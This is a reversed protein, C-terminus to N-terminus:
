IDCSSDEDPYKENAFHEAEEASLWYPYIDGFSQDAYNYRIIVIGLGKEEYDVTMIYGNNLLVMIAKKIGNEFDEQSNYDDKCIVLENVKHM